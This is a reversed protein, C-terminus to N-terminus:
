RQVKVSITVDGATNNPLNISEIKILGKQGKSNMFAVVQDAGTVQIYQLDSSSVSLAEIETDTAADYDFGDAVAAFYTASGGRVSLNGDGCDSTTVDKTINIPMEFRAPNSCLFGNFDGQKQIAYTLDIAGVTDVSGILDAANCETYVLGTASNVRAGLLSSNGGLTVGTHEDVIGSGGVELKIKLRTLQDDADKVVVSLYIPSFGTPVTYIVDRNQLDGTNRLRIGNSGGKPQKSVDLIDGVKNECDSQYLNIFKLNSNGETLALALTLDTGAEVMIGNTIEADTFNLVRISANGTNDPYTLSDCEEASTETPTPTPDDDGGCSAFGLALAVVSAKAWFSLKKM